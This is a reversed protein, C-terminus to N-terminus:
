SDARSSQLAGLISEAGSVTVGPGPEVFLAELVGDEVIAAFRKARMGMDYRSLDIDLGLARTYDGNGDALMLLYDAVGAQKRWADRVAVDNVAMCAITDVGLAKIDDSRALFGPLHTDSCTRTFAGPVAFLVVRKGDFVESAPLKHVGESTMTRFHGDPMREGPQISM